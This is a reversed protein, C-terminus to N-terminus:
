WINGAGPTYSTSIVSNTKLVDCKVMGSFTSMAADVKVSGATVELKTGKVKVDGGTQLTIAGDLTITCGAAVLELSGSGSDKLTATVGGPTSLEITPEDNEEVIAIRTGAKGTFSWRDVRDGPLTEPPAAAGNWMGGVVVPLRPDANVFCVLVEDGVDPILFAGRDGGAFPVAVRAWVPADQDAVGDWGYLRLQVRGQSDPDQVSIVEALYAAGLGLPRHVPFATAIM